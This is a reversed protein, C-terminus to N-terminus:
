LNFNKLYNFICEENIGTKSIDGLRVDIEYNTKTRLLTDIEITTERLLNRSM